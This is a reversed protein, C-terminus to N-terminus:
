KFEQDSNHKHQFLHRYSQVLKSLPEHLPHWPYPPSVNMHHVVVVKLPSHVCNSSTSARSNITLIVAESCWGIRTSLLYM